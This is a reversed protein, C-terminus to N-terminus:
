APGQVIANFNSPAAHWLAVHPQVCREIAERQAHASTRRDGSFLVRGHQSVMPRPETPCPEAGFPAPARLDEPPWTAGPATAPIRGGRCQFRQLVGADGPLVPAPEDEINIPSKRCLLYASPSPIASRLAAAATHYVCFPSCFRASDIQYFRWRFHRIGHQATNESVRLFLMMDAGGGGGWGQHLNAVDATTMAMYPPAALLVPASHVKRRGAIRSEFGDGRGAIQAAM